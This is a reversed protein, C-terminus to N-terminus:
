FEEWEQDSGGGAVKASSSYSTKTAAAHNDKSWPREEARREVATSRNSSMAVSAQGSPSDVTFFDVMQNLDDAQSGLSESAAAAQEVLAANQQTLEDMQSIAKNVEEIGTSQELSAAAIEGVIDTVRSVGSVIEELTQGSENVLKSGHEVKRGSDEILDKIEKAATASRGALNRVESAVVAFGRGQEGARAAEVSANLALLNTQFAIEDIVGIIDSIKKSSANIEAMANVAESVVAGGREAQGRAALALENANGANDANQRVTSTMHEMSSATQELSAAQEETRQSLDTNGQSIEGAGTKVSASSIQINGVVDTLRLITSNVDDKLQNFSGQYDRDIKETLNGVAMSSMVRLTDEVIGDAVAVLQNVGDSLSEFFDSKGELSIRKSLDGALASDVVQQVEQQISVEQTKDKWEIVSGLREGQEDVVPNAVLKMTRGGLVIEDYHAASLQELLLRQQPPSKHIADINTGLLNAADFSPLDKRFDSQVQSFLNAAANNIYIIKLENNAIIVNSNVNNLAQKIRGNETLLIKDSKARTEIKEQMVRLTEFVGSLPKSTDFDYEADEDSVTLAVERLIVPDAGLQRMVSVALSLALVLSLLAGIGAAIIASWMLVSTASLAEAKNIEAVITWSLGEIDVPSFSTFASEGYRNIMTAQGVEGSILSESAVKSSLITNAEEFRSQSRFLGDSSALYTEGTEGLGSAEEMMSNIRGVPMQFVLVGELNGENYIPSAIFSAAAEYSPTYPEFDELVYHEGPGMNRAKNFARAFNTGSYPGTLLNTGYDIEKFVSYVIEGSEADILFIDYFEFDKLYSRIVPHYYEHHNSYSTGDNASDMSGKSGLPNSNAAMYEYQAITAAESAPLLPSVNISKDLTEQYLGGFDDRYFQSVAARYKGLENASLNREEPLDAFSSRFDAMAQVIMKNNSFTKVQAGIQQFYLEVQTKKVERVTQLQNYAQTEIAESAKIMNTISALALPILCSALLAVILKSRLSLNMLKNVWNM